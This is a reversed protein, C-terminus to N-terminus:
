AAEQLDDADQCTLYIPKHCTDGVRAIGTCEGYYGTAWEGTLRHRWFHSTTHGCTCTGSYITKM